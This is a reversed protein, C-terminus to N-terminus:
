LQWYTYTTPDYLDKRVDVLFAEVDEKKWGLFKIYWYMALADLFSNTNTLTLKGIAKEQHGKAWTGIPWQLSQHRINVFGQKELMVQFQKTIMTDTNSHKGAESILQSWKWFPSDEKTRSGAWGLPFEPEYVEMWGGPKLNDWTQKFYRERDHIGFLLMRGSIFDFKKDFNWDDEANEIKFSCNPPIRAPQIPSLDTGLVSSSPYADAFDIAWSGTGTGVDLVDQGDSPLPALHLKGKLCLKWVQHQIDLRNAEEDDNPLAYANEDFAHYRRGNVVRFKENSSALKTTAFTERGLASNDSSEATDVELKEGIVVENKEEQAQDM